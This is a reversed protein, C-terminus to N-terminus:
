KLKPESVQILVFWAQKRMFPFITFIFRDIAHLSTLIPKFIFTKRLLIALLSSLFYFDFEVKKFYQKLLQLDNNLLPHEDETRLQPTRNRYWNILVNHGLPEMFIAKGEPNLVRNIERYSKDVDLHHIIGSGCIVDFSSDSFDLAEANMQKFDIVLNEANAKQQAQEIAYDSIDIGTVLGGNKAIAYASSGEGCGYELYKKNKAQHTLLHLYKNEIISFIAYFKDTVKRTKDNFIQNHFAQERKIRDNEL